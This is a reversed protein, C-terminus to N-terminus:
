RGGLAAILSRLQEAVSKLSNWITNKQEATYPNTGVSDLTSQAAAIKANVDALQNGLGAATANDAIRASIASTGAIDKKAWFHYSYPAGNGLCKNRLEAKVSDANGSAVASQLPSIVASQAGSVVGQIGSIDVGRASLRTMQDNAKAVADNYHTLRINGLQISVAQIQADFTGKREEYMTRLEQRTQMTVNWNHYQTRAEIMARNAAQMDQNITGTVFSTFGAPDGSSVYTSLTALDANLKDAPPNLLDAAQPVLSVFDAMVGTTFGVRASVSDYRAQLIQLEYPNATAAMSPISTAAIMLLALGLILCIKKM